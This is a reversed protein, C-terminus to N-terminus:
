GLQRDGKRLEAEPPDALRHDVIKAVIEDDLDRDRARAQRAPHQDHRNKSDEREKVDEEALEIGLSTAM